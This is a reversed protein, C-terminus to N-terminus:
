FVCENEKLPECREAAAEREPWWGLSRNDQESRLMLADCQVAVKEWESRPQPGGNWCLWADLQESFMGSWYNVPDYIDGPEM